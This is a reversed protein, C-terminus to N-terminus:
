YKKWMSDFDLKIEGNSDVASLDQEQIETSQEKFELIPTEGITKIAEDVDKIGALEAIIRYEGNIGKNVQVVPESVGFANVRREIIDRASEMASARDAEAINTVDAEYVLHAGGRLDLGLSFPISKVQPLVIINNTKAALNKSFNNYIDGGSALGVMLTFIVILGLIWWSKARLSLKSFKQILSM